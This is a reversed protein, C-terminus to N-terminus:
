LYRNFYSISNGIHIILEQDDIKDYFQLTKTAERSLSVLIMQADDDIEEFGRPLVSLNLRGYQSVGIVRGKIKQGLRLPRFMESKHVFALYYQDTTVFSGVEYNRYVTGSMNKNELHAPFNAALQEFVSEEAMKAWIRENEDTE